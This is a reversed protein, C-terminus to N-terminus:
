GTFRKIWTELQHRHILDLIELRVEPEWTLLLRYKRGIQIRYVRSLTEIPKTRQWVTKDQAAFDAAAKLAKAVMPPPLSECNRCFTPNYDPILIKKSAKQPALGDPKEDPRSTPANTAERIRLQKQTDQLKRRLQRRDHQQINIEAKLNDIQRRLDAATKRQESSLPVVTEATKDSVATATVTGALKKGLRDLELEKERLESQKKAASRNAQIVKEKFEQIQRDKAEVQFNSEGKKMTWEFFDELPDQWPDHGLEARCARVTEVLLENDLFANERGMVAARAFVISLAPMSNEMKYSLDLLGYDLKIRDEDEEQKLAQQSCAELPTFNELNQVLDFQLELTAADHLNEPPIVDMAKRAVGLDGADLASELLDEMHGLAFEQKKPRGKLEMLMDYGFQRMGFHVACSYAQYLQDENLQAPELKKLEYARMNTIIEVDNALNPMSRLQTMTIGEYPSPDRLLQQDKEHCCKKYKKGSGCPCPANRGIKPVPRRVTYDGGIVVPPKEEPLAELVDQTTLLPMDAPHQIEDDLLALSHNILLNAEMAHIKQSLKLLAKKVDSQRTNKRLALEAAITAGFAQREWSIDEARIVRLLPDIADTDQVRYAFAFDIMPEAIKLVEALVHPDLRINNVGCVCMLTGLPQDGGSEILFQILQEYETVSIDAFLDATKALAPRWRDTQSLIELLNELKSPSLQM